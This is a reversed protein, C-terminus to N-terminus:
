DSMLSWWGFLAGSVKGSRRARALDARSPRRRKIREVAAEFEGADFWIGHEECVDVTIGRKRRLDLPSGCVPCMLVREAEGEPADGGRTPDLESM